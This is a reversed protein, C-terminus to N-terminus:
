PVTILPVDAKTVSFVITVTGSATEDTSIFFPEPISLDAGVLAGTPEDIWCQGLIESSDLSGALKYRVTEFGGKSEKGQSTLSEKPLLILWMGPGTPAYLIDKLANDEDPHAEASGSKGMRTYAKKDVIFIEVMNWDASEPTIEQDEFTQLNMEIRANGSADVFIRIRVPDQGPITTTLEMQVSRLGLTGEVRPDTFEPFDTGAAISKGPTTGPLPTSGAAFTGGSQPSPNSLFLCSTSVLGIVVLRITRLPKL